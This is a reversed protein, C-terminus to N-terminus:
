KFTYNLQAGVRRGDESGALVAMDHPVPPHGDNVCIYGLSGGVGAPALRYDVATRNGAAPDSVTAYGDPHDDRAKLHSFGLDPLILRPGASDPHPLETVAPGARAMGASALALAFVASLSEIKFM